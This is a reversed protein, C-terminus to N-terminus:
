LLDRPEGQIENVLKMTENIPSEEGEILLRVAGEAGAIGGAAFLTAKVGTLIKLAEIETVITGTVPFLRPLRSKGKIPMDPSANMRCLTMIDEYVLKELGVPLILSLRKGIIFGISKGITRSFESGILIGGVKNKYDLANCGKIYVDGPEMVEPANWRDLEKVIKGNRLVLGPIREPPETGSREPFKQPMTRGSWYKRKDIKKGLIEEVIYANTTGTCVVIMGEQMKRQVVDMQAVAKAILRKSESVTLIIQNKM